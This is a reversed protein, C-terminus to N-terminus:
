QKGELLLIVLLFTSTKGRIARGLAKAPYSSSYGALWYSDCRPNLFFFFSKHEQMRLDYM